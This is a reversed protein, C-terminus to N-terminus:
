NETKEERRPVMTLIIGGDDEADAILQWKELLCKVDIRDLRVCDVRLAQLLALITADSVQRMQDLAQGTKKETEAVLQQWFRREEFLSRAKYDVNRLQARLRRIEEEKAKKVVAANKEKKM